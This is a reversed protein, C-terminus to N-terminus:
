TLEEIALMEAARPLGHLRANVLREKAEPQGRLDRVDGVLAQEEPTLRRRIHYATPRDDEWQLEQVGVGRLAELVLRRRVGPALQGGVSAHWVPGGLKM